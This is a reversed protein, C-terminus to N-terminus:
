LDLEWSFRADPHREFATRNLWVAERQRAYPFRASAREILGIIQEPSLQPPMLAEVDQRSIPATCAFIASNEETWSILSLKPHLAETTAVVWPHMWFQFDQHIVLSGGPILAPYFERMVHSQTDWGKCIDVFLIEIPGGTWSHTEILGGHPVIRDSYPRTFQEFLPFMDVGDLKPYGWDYLWTQKHAEAITFQDYAHIRPGHPSRAAGYALHVTSGGLFAGLDCIAGRGDPFVEAIWALMRREEHTLMTPVRALQDALTYSRLNWHKTLVGDWRRARPDILAPCSNLCGEAEMTTTM